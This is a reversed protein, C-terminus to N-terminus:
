ISIIAFFLLLILFRLTLALALMLWEVRRNIQLALKLDAQTLPRENEGIYPKYFVEGFYDHSGGFRCNLIGALAAEPYGANPSAHQRGNRRVFGLLNLKGVSLLMLFATLRAPIYNLLDDFKASFYGYDRYRDNKYGIMSDQTNAMKYMLMGPLGLVAWWSMPAVVGDSLNESLTELAATQVEHESLNQTDRGVIRAVQKRGAALSKELASFVSQVENRLTKGSLMFFVTSIYFVASIPLLFEWFFDKSFLSVSLRDLGISVMTIIWLVLVPLLFALLSILSNYASGRLYAQSSNGQNFRKEGWAILKGFGVIPHYKSNPDGFIKDMLVGIIFLLAIFLSIIFTINLSANDTFIKFDTPIAYAGIIAVVSILWVYICTTLGLLGINYLTNFIKRM